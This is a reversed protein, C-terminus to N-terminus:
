RETPNQWKIKELILALPLGIGYCVVFESLGVSGMSFLFYHLEFGSPLMFSILFSVTLASIVVPPLPALIPVNKIRFYRLKRTLRAAVFSSLSGVIWDIVGYPSSFNSILCGLTLGPIAFPTFIPLITLAESIRFQFSQYALGFTSSLSTLVVYITAILATQTVKKTLPSAISKLM